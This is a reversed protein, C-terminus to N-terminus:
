RKKNAKKTNKKKSNTKSNGSGSNRADEKKSRVHVKNVVKYQDYLEVVAIDSHKLVYDQLSMGFTSIDTINIGDNLILSVDVRRLGGFNNVKISQVKKVEKQKSIENEDIVKNIEKDGMYKISNVILRLAYYASILSMIITGLVDGYRLVNVFYGVKTIILSGLIIGLVIFELSSNVNGVLLTGKRKNYTNIIGFCTVTYRVFLIVLCILILLWSPNKLGGVISYFVVGVCLILFLLGILSTLLGKYKKNDKKICGLLNYVIFIVEIIGSALLTNSKLLFGFLVKIALIILSSILYKKVEM